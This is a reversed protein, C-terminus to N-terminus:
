KFRNKYNVANRKLSERILLSYERVEEPTLPPNKSDKEHALEKAGLFQERALMKEHNKVSKM